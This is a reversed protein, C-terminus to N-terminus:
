KKKLVKKGTIIWEGSRMGDSSDFRGDTRISWFLASDKAFTGRNKDGDVDEFYVMVSTPIVSVNYTHSVNGKKDTTLTLIVDDRIVVPKINPTVKIGEIPKGSENAVSIDVKFDCPAVGYYARITSPDYLPVPTPPDDPNLPDSCSFGLAVLIAPGLWYVIRNLFKKM